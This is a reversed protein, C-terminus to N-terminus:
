RRNTTVFTKEATQVCIRIGASINKFVGKKVMEELWTLDEQDLMTTVNIKRKM